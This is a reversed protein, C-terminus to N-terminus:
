IKNHENKTKLKNNQRGWKRKCSIACWNFQLQLTVKNRKPEIYWISQCVATVRVYTNTCISLQM